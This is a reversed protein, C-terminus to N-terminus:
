TICIPDTFDLTDVNIPAAIRAADVRVIPAPVSALSVRAARNPKAAKVVSATVPTVAAVRAAPKEPWQLSRVASHFVLFAM